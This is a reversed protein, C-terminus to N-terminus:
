DLMKLKEKIKDVSLIEFALNYKKSEIKISQMALYSKGNEIKMAVIVAEENKPINGFGMIKGETFNVNMVVKQNKFILKAMNFPNSEVNTKASVLERYGNRAFYDCNIPGLDQTEFITYQAKEIDALTKDDVKLEAMLRRYEVEEQEWQIKIKQLLAVHAVASKQLAGFAVIKSTNKREEQNLGFFKEFFSPKKARKGDKLRTIHATNYDNKGENDDNEERWHLTQWNNGQMQNELTWHALHDCLPSFKADSNLSSFRYGKPRVDSIQYVTEKKKIIKGKIKEESVISDKVWVFMSNCGTTDMIWTHYEDASDIARKLKELKNYIGFSPQKPSGWAFNNTSDSASTTPTWLQIPNTTAQNFNGDDFPFTEKKQRPMILKYKKSPKVRKNEKNKVDINVMGGTVLLEDNEAHTALNQLFIDSMSYAEKLTVTLETGEDVDFADLPFSLITGQKGVINNQETKSTKIKFIQVDSSTEKALFDQITQQPVKPKEIIKKPTKKADSAALVSPGKFIVIVEVRRNKQKGDLTNNDAVPLNEGNSLSSFLAVSIGKEVLFQQVVQTRRESLAQNYENSGDADTNGRLYITLSTKKSLSDLVSKLTGEESQRIISKDYDFYVNWTLTKQASVTLFSLSIFLIVLLNKLM